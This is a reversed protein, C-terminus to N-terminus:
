LLETKLGQGLDLNLLILEAEVEEVSDPTKQKARCEKTCQRM